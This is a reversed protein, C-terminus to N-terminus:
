FKIKYNLSIIHKNQYETRYYDFKYDVGIYNGKFLKYEAGASYRMKYLESNSLDHFAEIGIEPRLKINPVDYEISGKYRLFNSKDDDDDAYNSYLLRFSPYFRNYKKNLSVGFAYRSLYETDKTERPNVIFRYSGTLEFVKSAKYDLQGEIHYKSLTFTEDFRFEPSLSLSIKKVPKHQLKLSTRTQFNSEVEQAYIMEVSFCLSLIIYFISKNAKMIMGEMQM